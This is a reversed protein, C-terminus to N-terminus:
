NKQRLCIITTSVFAAILLIIIVVPIAIAAAINIGKGGSINELYMDM